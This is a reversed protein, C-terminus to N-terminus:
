RRRPRRHGFSRAVASSRTPTCCRARSDPTSHRRRLSSHRAGPAPRATSSSWATDTPRTGRRRQRRRPTCRAAPDPDPTDCPHQSRTPGTHAPGTRQPTDETATSALAHPLALADPRLEDGPRPHQNLERMVSAAQARRNERLAGGRRAAHVRQAGTAVRELGLAVHSAAREVKEPLLSLLPDEEPARAEKQVRVDLGATEFEQESM